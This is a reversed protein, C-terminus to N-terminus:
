RLYSSHFSTWRAYGCGDSRVDAKEKLAPFTVLVLDSRDKIDILASNALHFLPCSLRSHRGGLAGERDLHLPATRHRGM